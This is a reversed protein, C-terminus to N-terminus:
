VSPVSSGSQSLNGHGLVAGVSGETGAPVAEILDAPEQAVLLGRAQGVALEFRPQANVQTLQDPQEVLVVQVQARGALLAAADDDVGAAAPPAPDLGTVDPRQLGDETLDLHGAQRIAAAPLGVEVGGVRRQVQGALQGGM